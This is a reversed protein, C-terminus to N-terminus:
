CKQVVGKKNINLNKNKSKITTIFGLSFFTFLGFNLNNEPVPTFKAYTINSNNINALAIFETDTVIGDLLDVLEEDQQNFGSCTQGSAFRGFQLSPQWSGFDFPGSGFGGTASCAVLVENVLDSDDILNDKFPIFYSSSDGISPYIIFGEEVLEEPTPELLDPTANVATNISTLADVANELGNESNEFFLPTSFDPSGPVGFVEVFTGFEFDVNYRQDLIPLNLIKTANRFNFPDQSTLPNEQEILVKIDNELEVIIETIEVEQAYNKTQYTFIITACYISTKLSTALLKKSFM